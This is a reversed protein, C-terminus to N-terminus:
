DIRLMAAPDSLAFIGRDLTLANSHETVYQSWRNVSM